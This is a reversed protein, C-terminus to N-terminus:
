NKTMQMSSWGEKGKILTYIIKQTPEARSDQEGYTLGTVIMKTPSVVEYHTIYPIALNHYNDSGLVKVKDKDNVQLETLTWYSAAGAGVGECSQDGQWFVAYVSASPSLLVIDQDQIESYHDCTLKKAEQSTLKILKSRLAPDIGTTSTDAAFALTSCLLLVGVSRISNNIKM